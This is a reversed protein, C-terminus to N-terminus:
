AFKRLYIPSTAPVFRSIQMKCLFIESMYGFINKKDAHRECPCQRHDNKDKEQKKCSHLAINIESRLKWMKDWVLNLEAM